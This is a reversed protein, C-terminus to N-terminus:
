LNSYVIRMRLKYNPHNGNGLKVRGFALSNSYNLNLGYYSLNYPASVRLKYNRGKKTVMNQVYRTLNFTYAARTGFNDSINKVFGGYYAHDIGGSPFFSVKDDPAYFTTPSLDYYVPKFKKPMATDDVLDLYLFAPPALAKDLLPDGPIQELIVEARHIVRNPYNDL